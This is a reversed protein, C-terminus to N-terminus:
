HENPKHSKRSRVRATRILKKQHRPWNHSWLPWCLTWSQRSSQCTRKSQRLQRSAGSNCILIRTLMKINKYKYIYKKVACSLPGLAKRPPRNATAPGRYCQLFFFLYKIPFFLSRHSSVLQSFGRCRWKNIMQPMMMWFIYRRFTLILYSSPFIHFKSPSTPCTRGQRPPPSVLGFPFLSNFFLSFAPTSPTLLFFSFSLALLLFGFIHRSFARLDRFTFDPWTAM